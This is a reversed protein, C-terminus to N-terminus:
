NSGPLYLMPLTCIIFWGLKGFDGFVPNGIKGNAFAPPLDIYKATGLDLGGEATVKPQTVEM